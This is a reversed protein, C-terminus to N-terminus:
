DIPQYDRPVDSLYHDTHCNPCVHAICYELDDCVQLDEIDKEVPLEDEEFVGGCMGCLVKHDEM